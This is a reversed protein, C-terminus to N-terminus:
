YYETKSMLVAFFGYFLINITCSIIINIIIVDITVWGYVTSLTAKFFNSILVGIIVLATSIVATLLWGSFCQGKGEGFKGALISAIILAVLYGIGLILDPLVFSGFFPQAIIWEFIIHPYSIISGFLYYFIMLPYTQINFFLIDFGPGFAFYIITFIFNIGVLALMSFLFAKAFGM